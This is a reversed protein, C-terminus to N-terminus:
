APTMTKMEAVIARKEETQDFYGVSINECMQAIHDLLRNVKERIIWQSDEEAEGQTMENVQKAEMRWTDRGSSEPQEALSQLLRAQAGPIPRNFWPHGPRPLENTADEQISKGQTEEEVEPVEEEIEVWVSEEEKTSQNAIDEYYMDIVQDITDQALSKMFPFCLVVAVLMCCTLKKVYSKHAKMKRTKREAMVIGRTTGSEADRYEKLIPKFIGLAGKAQFLFAISLAIKGLAMLVLTDTDLQLWHINNNFGHMPFKTYSSSMLIFLVNSVIGVIASVYLLYGFYTVCKGCKRIEKQHFVLKQMEYQAATIASPNANM